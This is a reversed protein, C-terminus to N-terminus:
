RVWNWYVSMPGVLELVSGIVGPAQCPLWQLAKKKFNSTHSSGSFDGLHLRAEFKRIKRERPAKAM